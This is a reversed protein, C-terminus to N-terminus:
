HKRNKLIKRFYYSVAGFDAFYESKQSAQKPKIIKTKYSGIWYNNQLSDSKYKEVRDGISKQSNDPYRLNKQGSFGSSILKIKM